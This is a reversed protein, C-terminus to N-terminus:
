HKNKCIEFQLAPVLPFIQIQMKIPKRNVYDALVLNIGASVVVSINKKAKSFVYLNYFHLLTDYILDIDQMSIILYRLVIISNLINEDNYWNQHISSKWIYIDNCWLTELIRSFPECIILSFPIYQEMYFILSTLEYQTAKRNNTELLKM